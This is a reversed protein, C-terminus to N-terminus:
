PRLGRSHDLSMGRRPHVPGRHRLIYVQSPLTFSCTSESILTMLSRAFVAGAAAHSQSCSRESTFSLLLAWRIAMLSTLLLSSETAFGRPLAVAHCVMANWRRGGVGVGPGGFGPSSLRCGLDAEESEEGKTEAVASIVTGTSRQLLSRRQHSEIDLFTLHWTVDWSWSQSKYAVTRRSIFVPM